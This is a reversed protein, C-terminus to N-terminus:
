CSFGNSVCAEVKRNTARRGDEEEEEDEDEGSTKKIGVITGENTHM